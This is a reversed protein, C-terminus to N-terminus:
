FRFNLGVRATWGQLAGEATIQDYSVDDTDSPVFTYTRSGLDQYVAEGKLSIQETVAVEVGAGAVWGLFTQSDSYSYTGREYIDSVNGEAEAVAVGGTAYFLINEYAFGARARLTALHKLNVSVIFADGTQSRDAVAEANVWNYDAEVGLVLNGMQMNAGAVVGLALADLDFTLPEFPIPTDDMMIDSETMEGSFAGVTGGVYIGSWDFASGSMDQAFAGGSAAVFVVSSALISSIRM